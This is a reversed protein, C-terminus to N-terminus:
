GHIPWQLAASLQLRLSRMQDVLQELGWPTLIRSPAPGRWLSGDQAGGATGLLAVPRARNPAIPAVVDRAALNPVRM